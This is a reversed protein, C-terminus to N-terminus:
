RTEVKGGVLNLTVTSGLPAISGGIPNQDHVWYSSAPYGVYKPPIYTVPVFGANSIINSALNHNEPMNVVSPVFAVANVPDNVTISFGGPVSGNVQVTIGNAATFSQGVALATKTLLNLQPMDNQPNGLPDSTQVQYVIVGESSINIDFQDARLRAEVMLYPVQQGIQVAAIRGAPPPQILSIAHLTYDAVRGIHLPVTSPDLWKITRKTWASFHTAGYVLSEQDFTGMDEGPFNKSFDSLDPLACLNTQHVLEGVWHGVDDSMCFRSWYGLTTGGRPGGLMVIAAGDFGNARLLNGLKAELVDPAVNTGDAGTGVVAEPLQVVVDLDALGSSVTHIYTRVSRDTGPIPQGTKPDKAPDFFVRQMIQDTWDPPPPNDSPINSRTLPIFALTKLGLWTM